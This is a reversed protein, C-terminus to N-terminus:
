DTKLDTNGEIKAEDDGKTSCYIVRFFEEREEETLEESLMESCDMNIKEM